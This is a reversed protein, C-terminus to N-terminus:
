LVFFSGKGAAVLTGSGDMEYSHTSRQVTVYDYSYVGVAEKTMTLPATTVGDRTTVKVTAATPDSLVAITGTGPTLTIATGGASYAVQFTTSTSGIVFYVQYQGYADKDPLGGVSGNLLAITQGNTLGHPQATTLATASATVSLLANWYM